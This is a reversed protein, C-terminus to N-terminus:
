ASWGKGYWGKGYWRGIDNQEGKVEEEALGRQISTWSTDPHIQENTASGFDCLKIVGDDSLLM